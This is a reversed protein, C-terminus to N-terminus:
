RSGRVTRTIESTEEDQEDKEGSARAKFDVVPRDDSPVSLFREIWQVIYAHHLVSVPRGQLAKKLTRWGFQAGIATKLLPLSYGHPAGEHSAMRFKELRQIQDQTLARTQPGPM